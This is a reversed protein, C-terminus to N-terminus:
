LNGSFDSSFRFNVAAMRMWARPLPLYNLNGGEKDQVCSAVAGDRAKLKLRHIVGANSKLIM